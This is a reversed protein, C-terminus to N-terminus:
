YIFSLNIGYLKLYLQGKQSIESTAGLLRNTTDVVFYMYTAKFKSNNLLDLDSLFMIKLIKIM